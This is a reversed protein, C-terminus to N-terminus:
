ADNLLFIPHKKYSRSLLFFLDVPLHFLGDTQSFHLVFILNLLYKLM